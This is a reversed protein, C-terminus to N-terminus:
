CVFAISDGPDFALFTNMVSMWPSHVILMHTAGDPHPLVSIGALNIGRLITTRGDSDCFHRGNISLPIQRTMIRIIM